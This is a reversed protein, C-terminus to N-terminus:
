GIDEAAGRDRVLLYAARLLTPAYAAV